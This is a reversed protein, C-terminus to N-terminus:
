KFIIIYLGRPQFKIEQDIKVALGILKVFENMKEKAMERLAKERGRLILEIRVKHGKELFKKTQKVKTELDHQGTQLGIRIGKIEPQKQKSKSEKKNRQYQYKGFDM